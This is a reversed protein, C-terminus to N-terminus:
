EDRDLLRRGAENLNERSLPALCVLYDGEVANPNAALFFRTAPDSEKVRALSRKEERVPYPHHPHVIGTFPDYATPFVSRVLADKAERLAEPERGDPLPVYDRFFAPLFRYSRPTATLLLWYVEAAVEDEAAKLTHRLWVGMWGSAGWWAPDILTDGSYVAALTRGRLETRVRGITSFGVIVGRADSLLLVSEKADLDAHFRSPDAAIFYSSFLQFLRERSKADLAPVPRIEAFARDEKAPRRKKM